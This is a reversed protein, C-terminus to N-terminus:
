PCFAVRLGNALNNGAPGGSPDRYWFSFRWVSGAAIQAAPQPPAGFDVLWSAIGGMGTSVVGLRYVPPAVCFNGDGVPFSDEELGYYFLGFQNPPCDLGLLRFNDDAISISGQWWTRAPLGTSNPTATCYSTPAPDLCGFTHLSVRGADAGATDDLADGALVDVLGDGDADAGGDVVSADGFPSPILTGAEGSYAYIPGPAAVLVDPTGDQDIDGGPAVDWGFTYVILQHVLSGDAGSHVNVYHSAFCICPVGYAYDATGDGDIDGLGSVGQGLHDQFTNSGVHRRIVAGTLGSHVVVRGAGGNDSSDSSVFDDHLDGDVDGVGSLERAVTVDSWHLGGTRGSFVWLGVGGTAGVAIDPWADGDVFGVGAVATGFELGASPALGHIVAGTRGSFVIAQSAGPAGAIVDDWGDLDVDGAGDVSAGLQGGPVFGDWHFLVSRDAGSFVTVSGVQPGATSDGPAGVAFDENGDHDLDGVFAVSAGFRDGPAAGYLDDLTVQASARAACLSLSLSLAFLSRQM